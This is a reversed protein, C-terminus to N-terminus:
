RKTKQAAQIAAIPDPQFKSVAGADAENADCSQAQRRDSAAADFSRSRSRRGLVAAIAVASSEVRQIPSSHAVDDWEREALMTKVQEVSAEDDEAM